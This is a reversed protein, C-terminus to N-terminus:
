RSVSNVRNRKNVVPRLAPDHIEKRVTQFTKHFCEIFAKAPNSLRRQSPIIASVALTPAGKLCRVNVQAASRNNLLARVTLTELLTYGIGRQVLAGALYYSHSRAVILPDVGSDAFLRRSEIALATQDFSSIFPRDKLESLDIEDGDPIEWDSPIVALIECEGIDSWTLGDNSVHGLTFGLNFTGKRSDMQNIIEETNLTSVSYRFSPYHRQFDVIADPLLELSITPVAAIRVYGGRRVRLRDAIIEFAALAEHAREAEEFLQRAEATPVLRGSERHFLEVGLKAEAHKLTTTVSPQSVGLQHAAETVTGNTMIAYFVELHRFNLDSDQALGPILLRDLEVPAAL